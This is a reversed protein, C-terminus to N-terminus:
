ENMCFLSSITLNATLESLSYVAWDLSKPDLAQYIAAYQSADQASSGQGADPEFSQLRVAAQTSAVDASEECYDAQLYLLIMM